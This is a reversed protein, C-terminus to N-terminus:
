RKVPVHLPRQLRLRQREEALARQFLRLEEVAAPPFPRLEGAPAPQFQRRAEDAPRRGADQLAQTQWVRVAVQNEQTQQWSAGQM